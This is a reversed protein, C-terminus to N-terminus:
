CLHMACVESRSNKQQRAQEEGDRVGRQREEGPGDDSLIKVEIDKAVANTLTM